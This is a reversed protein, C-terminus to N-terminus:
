FCSAYMLFIFLLVCVSGKHQADDSEYTSTEFNITTPCCLGHCHDEQFAEHCIPPLFMQGQVSVQFLLGHM